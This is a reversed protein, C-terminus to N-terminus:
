RYIPQGRYLGKFELGDRYRTYEVGKYVIMEDVLDDDADTFAEAVPLPGDDPATMDCREGCLTARAARPAYQALQVISRKLEVSDTLAAFESLQQLFNPHSLRLRVNLEHEVVSICAKAAAVAKVGLMWSVDTM